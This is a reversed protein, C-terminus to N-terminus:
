QRPAPARNGQAQAARTQRLVEDTALRTRDTSEIRGLVELQIRDLLTRARPMITDWDLLVGRGSEPVVSNTSLLHVRQEGQRQTLPSSSYYLIGAMETGIQWANTLPFVNEYQRYGDEGLLERLQRDAEGREMGTDYPLLKGGPATFSGARAHAVLEKFREIQEPALQLAKFLPAYRGAAAASAQQLYAVRLEPHRGFFAKAEAARAEQATALSARRQEAAIAPRAARATQSEAAAHEAQDRLERLKAALADNESRAVALASEAARNANVERVSGGFSLLLAFGVASIALKSTSMFQILGAAPGALTGAVAVSKLALGALTASMGVPAALVAEASLAMGLAASTSTVGRRALLAHLKELAREVRMRAADESLQLTAGIEAFPRRAFFRLLVAERDRESLERMAEDLVPRVRDWDVASSEADNGTVTNNMAFAERERASRRAETRIAKAAAHQTATYLWGALVPHSVLSRAKRALLTFVVQAVDKARHADGGLQRLAASYVLDLYRGVLETFAADSNTEVYRRLLEADNLM